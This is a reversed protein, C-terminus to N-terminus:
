NVGPHIKRCATAAENGTIQKLLEETETLRYLKERADNNYNICGAWNSVFKTHCLVDIHHLYRRLALAETHIKDLNVYVITKWEVNYLNAVGKSGYYVCPSEDYRELTYGLENQVAASLFVSVSLLIKVVAALQM